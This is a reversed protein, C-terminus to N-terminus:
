MNQQAEARYVWYEAGGEAEISWLHCFSLGFEGYSSMVDTFSTCPGVWKDM